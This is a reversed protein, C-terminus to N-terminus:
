LDALDLYEFLDAAANLFLLVFMETNELMKYVFLYDLFNNTSKNIIFITAATAVRSIHISTHLSFYLEALVKKKKSASVSISIGTIISM